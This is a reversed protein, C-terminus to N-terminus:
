EGIQGVQKELIRVASSVLIIMQRCNEMIVTSPTYQRIGLSSKYNGQKVRMGVSGPLFNHVIDNRLRRGQIFARDQVLENWDSAVEKQSERLAKLARSLTVGQRSIGLDYVATLVHGIGDWFSFIKFYYTDAYFDFWEKILFHEEEFDPFYEVSAGSSGPSQRWNEDPIGQNYFHTMLVYSKAVDALRNQLQMFQENVEIKRMFDALSSTTIRKAVVSRLRESIHEFSTSSYIENWEESKPFRSFTM